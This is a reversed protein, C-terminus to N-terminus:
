WASAPWRCAWPCGPTPSGKPALFAMGVTILVAAAGARVSSPAPRAVRRLEVRTFATVLPVLAVVLALVWVAWWAASGVAPQPM